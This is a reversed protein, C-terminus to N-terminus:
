NPIQMHQLMEIRKVGPRAAEVREEYLMYLLNKVLEAHAECGM